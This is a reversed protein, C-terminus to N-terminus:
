LGLKLEGWITSLTRDSKVLLPFIEKGNKTISFNDFVAKILTGPQRSSVALGVFIPENMKVEQSELDKWNEDDESIYGHFKNITRVLRIWCNGESWPGPAVNAVESTTIGKSARWTIHVGGGGGGTVTAFMNVSDADLDQRAMIGASSWEHVPEFTVLRVKAEFDGSIITHLFRFGDANGWIDHGNGEIAYMGNQIQTTGPTNAADGIDTSELQAYATCGLLFMLTFTNLGNLFIKRIMTMKSM